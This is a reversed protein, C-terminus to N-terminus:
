DARSMKAVTAHVVDERVLPDDRAYAVQQAPVDNGPTRVEKALHGAVPLAARRPAGRRAAILVLLGVMVTEGAEVGRWRGGSTGPGGQDHM